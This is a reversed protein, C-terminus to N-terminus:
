SNGSSLSILITHYAIAIPLASEAGSEPGVIFQAHDSLICERAILESQAASSAECRLPPAVPGPGGARHVM